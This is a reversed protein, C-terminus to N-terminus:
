AVATSPTARSTRTRALRTPFLGTTLRQTGLRPAGGAFLFANISSPALLGTDSATEGRSYEQEVAAYYFTRDKVLPGGMSLGGRYRTLSPRVGFTDELKPLANLRGSQGFLFADGHLTNTGSKTVVNIAGGSAGGNEASWGNTVVQFERVIELSLETRSAGSFEDNNNFGDITLTNSRPRLGAFSFGSDPLASSAPSRGGGPQSPAVGPALLAFELYNRSRVPLEEIREPDIITTASTRGSDIAPPHATVTVTEAGSALTLSIMLQVSAGIALTLGRQVYPAFGDLSVEVDYTGPPLETIRFAGRDDTVLTRHQNTEPDRVDVTAGPVVRSTGDVIVGAVSAGPTQAALIPSLAGILV